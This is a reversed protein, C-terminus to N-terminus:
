RLKGVLDQARLHTYKLLVVPNKHGSILAVEPVSLGLEFFRSIAEHRLDHFRLGEIGARRVLRDWAMRVAVASVPFIRPDTQPLGSLIAAARTTLPITRDEGNKTDRITLQRAVLDLDVWLVKLLEGRRMGTEIALEVLPWLYTAKCALSAGRLKEFEGQELRRDRPKSPPPKKILEVPNSTLPIGWEQRALKLIHQLLGLERKVTVPMVDKLRADRYDAFHKPGMDSLAVNAIERRLIAQLIFQEVERSKKQPVVEKLYRSILDSLPTSALLRPDAQEACLDANTERQRAWVEADARKHFTRSLNRSGDRRIQVQWKGNRRRLTAM